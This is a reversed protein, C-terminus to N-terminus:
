TTSTLINSGISRANDSPSIFQNTAGNRDYVQVKFDKDNIMARMVAIEDKQSAAVRNRAQNEDKILQILNKANEM